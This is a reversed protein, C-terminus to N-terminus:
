SARWVDNDLSEYPREIGARAAQREANLAQAAAVERARALMASGVALNARERDDATEPALRLVEPLTTGTGHWYRPVNRDTLHDWRTLEGLVTDFDQRASQVQELAARLAAHVPAVQEGLRTLAFRRM